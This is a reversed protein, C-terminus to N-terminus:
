FRFGTCFNINVSSSLFRHHRSHYLHADTTLQLGYFFQRRNLLLGSKVRYYISVMDKEGEISNPFSHRYGVGSMGTINLLWRRHFSWNYGYGLLFSYDRYRFRYDRRLDPLYGQLSDNLRTFDMGYDQHTLHLGAIFSGASQKQIKSYSYAASQCYRRNNFFYYGYLGYFEHKFGDFDISQFASSRYDGFRHVNVKSNDKSFYADLEVRSTTLSFDWRTNKSKKGTILDNLNFTYGAGIGYISFHIGFFSTINSNMRIPVRHSTLRGIYMDMWNQNKLTVKKHNGTGTVYATDYTDFFRNLWRYAAVVQRLGQPYVRASDNIGPQGHGLAPQCSAADHITNLSAEHKGVPPSPVLTDAPVCQAESVLFPLLVFFVIAFFRTM